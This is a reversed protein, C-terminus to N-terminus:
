ILSKQKEKTRHEIRRQNALVIIKKIEQQWEESKYKRENIYFDDILKQLTLTVYSDIPSFLDLFYAQGCGDHGINKSAYYAKNTDECIIQYIVKATNKDTKGMLNNLVNMNRIFEDEDQHAQVRYICPLDKKTFYTGVARSVKSLYMKELNKGFDKDDLDFDNLLTYYSFAVEENPLRFNDYSYIKDLSVISRYIDFSIIRGKNSLEIEYTIAPRKIMPEFSLYNTIIDMPFIPNEGTFMKNRFYSELEDYKVYASIDVTHVKIVVRGKENISASYCKNIYPNDLSTIAFTTSDEIRENLDMQRRYLYGFSSYDPTEFEETKIEDQKGLNCISKLIEPYKKYHKIAEIFEKIKIQILAIYEKNFNTQSVFLNFIKEYYEKPIYTSTQNKLEILCSEFYYDLVIFIINKNNICINLIDPMLEILRKIKDYNNPNSLFYKIIDTRNDYFTIEEYKFDLISYIEKLKNVLAKKNQKKLERRKIITQHKLSNLLPEIEEKLKSDSSGYIVMLRIAVQKLLDFDVLTNLLYLYLTTLESTKFTEIETTKAKELLSSSLVTENKEDKNVLKRGNFTNIKKAHSLYEQLIQKQFNCFLIAEKVDPKLKLKQEEKYYNNKNKKYENIVKNLKEIEREIQELLQRSVEKDFPKLFPYKSVLEKMKNISFNFKM